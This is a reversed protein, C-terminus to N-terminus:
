ESASYVRYDWPALEIVEGGTFDVDVPPESTSSAPLVQSYHGTHDTGALGIEQGGDSLNLIVFVRDGDRQRVFAFVAGDNTSHVWKVGGGAMGNWLARNRHKLNLLASYLRAFPHERWEIEDKEFFALRRDLGAEQGSYVLPMGGLTAALVAFAAAGDGFREFVTGDWSNVDHNSTFYMRYADEPYTSAEKEVYMALASAPLKRAALNKMLDHLAWAYTMDFAYQHHEPSEWEALMFVPKIEDLEARAENWFDVPVMGAVDCRFGDIDVDEVWFKMADIMYRRLGPKSYDIDIVDTWDKNPPVFDGHVDKALWGPHELTLPNDWACHNAVWDIIVYMGMDHIRDVLAKFDAVTGFEPNVARYDRVSYYSGLTGKRNKEGIPHIPMFWLIDVGMERLRPLHEEFEKFTGGPSYQRVNVEYISANRSWEPHTVPKLDARGDNLPGALTPAAGRGLSSLALASVALVVLLLRSRKM